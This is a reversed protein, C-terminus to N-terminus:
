FMSIILCEFVCWHMSIYVLLIYIYIYIYIFIHVGVLV